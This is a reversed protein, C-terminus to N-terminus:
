HENALKGFGDRLANKFREVGAALYDHIEKENRGKLNPPAEQLFEREMASFLLSTGRAVATFIEARDLIAGDAIRNERDAKHTMAQLLRLRQGAIRKRLEPPGSSGERGHASLYFEWAAVDALPPADPRKRHASILQRAVGLRRALESANAPKKTGKLKKIKHKM